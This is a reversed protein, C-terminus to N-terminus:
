PEPTFDVKPTPPLSLDMGYRGQFTFYAVHGAVIEIEARYNIGVYPIRLSYKGAPLDSIVLNEQYYPDSNTTNSGYSNVWWVEETELNVLYVIQGPILQAYTNMVRGVLIGWGQPPVLWLEPNRTNFYANEGVRVEFHLHPGTSHGTNGVLGLPTGTVVRQGVLVNSSQLHAYITYLRQGQYGFDHQIAVALGYPDDDRQYSYYLGYGSWVVKGPGVALVETGPPAPIDIGTHILDGFFIGGYRYDPVPANVENAAIPRAFLFHDYPTPAWPIPYLPPRWDNVLTPPEIPQIQNLILDAPPVTPSPSATVSLTTTVNGVLYVASPTPPPTSSATPTDSPVSTTPIVQTSDPLM